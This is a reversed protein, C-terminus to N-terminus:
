QRLRKFIEIARECKRPDENDFLAQLEDLLKAMASNHPTASAKAAEWGDCFAQILRNRLYVGDAMGAQCEVGVVSELWTDRARAIDNRLDM